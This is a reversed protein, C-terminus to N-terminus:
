KLVIRRGTKASERATSLIETVVINNELSSLGTPELRGRVVATLYAMFDRQDPPLPLPSSVEEQSDRVHTRLNNGGTAIAYGREAYV